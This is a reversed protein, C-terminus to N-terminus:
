PSPKSDGPVGEGGGLRTLRGFVIIMLTKCEEGGHDVGPRWSESTQARGPWLKRIVRSLLHPSIRTSAFIFSPAPTPSFPEQQNQTKQKKSFHVASNFLCSIRSIVDAEQDALIKNEPAAGGGEGGSESQCFRPLFFCHCTEFFAEDVFPRAERAGSKSANQM